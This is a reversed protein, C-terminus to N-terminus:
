AAGADAAMDRSFKETPSNKGAAPSGRAVSVTRTSFQLAGVQSARSTLQM